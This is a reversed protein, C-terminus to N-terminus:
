YARDFCGRSVNLGLLPISVQIRAIEAVPIQSCPFDLSMLLESEYWVELGWKKKTYQPKFNSSLAKLREVVQAM